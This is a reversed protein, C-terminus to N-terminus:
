MQYGNYIVVNWVGFCYMSWFFCQLYWLFLHVWELRTWSFYHFCVRPFVDPPDMNKVLQWKLVHKVFELLCTKPAQTTGLDSTWLPHLDSYIAGWQGERFCSTVLLKEGGVFISSGQFVVVRKRKPFVRIKLDPPFESRGSWRQSERVCCMRFRFRTPRSVQEDSILLFTMLAFTWSSSLFMVDFLHIFM